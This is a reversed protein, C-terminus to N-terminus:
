KFSSSSLRASFTIQLYFMALVQVVSMSALLFIGEGGFANGFDTEANLHRKGSAMRYEDSIVLSAM